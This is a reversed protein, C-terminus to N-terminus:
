PKKDLASLISDLSVPGERLIVPSESLISVVTSSQGVCDEVNGGDILIDPEGDLGKVADKADLGAPCGSLNASSAALPEGLKELLAMIFGHAPIRLGISAGNVGKGDARAVVTLAGPWFVRGIRHLREDHLLGAREACEISPALMQLLKSQPRRKLCYIRERAQQSRWLAVLGYVTETPVAAVGGRRLISSVADLAEPDDQRLALM